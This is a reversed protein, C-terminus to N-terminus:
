SRWAGEGGSIMAPVWAYIADSCVPRMFQEISARLSRLEKPAGGEVLHEGPVVM